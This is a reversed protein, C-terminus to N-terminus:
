RTKHRRARDIGCVPSALQIIMTPGEPYIPGQERVFTPAQGGTTWIEINPPKKGILPAVVGAIGGLEIKIEEHVAKRPAGAVSFTEEGLNPDVLKVVRPAPAAVLMSATSDTTEKAGSVMNEVVLPVMGNALDLLLNLHDTKVVEKGDDGTSRVTVQGSHSDISVDMPHPFTPGKQIHHDSILQYTRHQSFVTTEDDISGDKFHFVTETTVRDGHVVQVTDGSALIQGEESRIELFGHITGEVLHVPPLDAQASPRWACSLLAIPLWFRLRSGSLRKSM